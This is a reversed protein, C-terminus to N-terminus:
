KTNKEVFPGDDELMLEIQQQFMNFVKEGSKANGCAVFSLGGVIAFVLVFLISLVKKM